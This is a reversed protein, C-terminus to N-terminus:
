YVYVTNKEHVVWDNMPTNEELTLVIKKLGNNRIGYKWLAYDRITQSKLYKSSSLKRYARDYFKQCLEKTRFERCNYLYDESYTGNERIYKAVILFYNSAM